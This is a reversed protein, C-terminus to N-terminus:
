SEEKYYVRRDEEQYPPCNDASFLSYLMGAREEMIQYPSDVREGTNPFSGTKRASKLIERGKDNLALVRAYPAPFDMDKQTIGLFACMVMRDLRTRTYRKSKTASLIEELSACRRANHMLKRWLGESGYPLAEFEADTMTGVTPELLLRDCHQFMPEAATNIAAFTCFFKLKYSDYSDYARVPRISITNGDKVYAKTITIYNGKDAEVTAYVATPLSRTFPLNETTLELTFLSKYGEFSTDVSIEGNLIIFNGGNYADIQIDSPNVGFNTATVNLM